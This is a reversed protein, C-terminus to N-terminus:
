RKFEPGNPVIPHPQRKGDAGLRDLGVGLDDAQV